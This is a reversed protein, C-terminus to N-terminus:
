QKSTRPVLAVKVAESLNSVRTLSINAPSAFDKPTTVPIIGTDLGLHAAEQLRRSLHRASRVEGGLGVEGVAVLGDRVPRDKLSSLIALAVALDASPERIRLGGIVNVLVDQNSLRAGMRKSLVATILLLRNLDIGNATRRPLNFPTMSTLAQVEVLIPRTGEMVPVIISGVEGPRRESLLARSPDPVDVLGKETMELIGTENTSGFRNKEGRLLRYPSYADGELYLVVDVIHELMRPGAIAGEKTVHGSVMVPVGSYKSWELLRWTAERVQSLSGPSSGIESFFVTQISDVIVLRPSIEDMFQLAANLDNAAHVFLNSGDIGLRSARMRVQQDSEEGSVYLVPYNSGSLDAATQLLLTSKGIGPEGGLLVLSGPVVGGGLVRSFEPSTLPIRSGTSPAVSSLEVPSRSISAPGSIGPRPAQRVAQTLSNWTGCRSCRGEWRPTAAGCENCIYATKSQTKPM